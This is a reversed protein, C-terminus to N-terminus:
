SQKGFAFCKFDFSSGLCVICVFKECLVLVQTWKLLFWVTKPPLLLPALFPFISVGTLTSKIFNFSLWITITCALTVMHCSWDDLFYAAKLFTHFQSININWINSSQTKPMRMPQLAPLLHVHEPLTRKPQLRVGTPYEKRRRERWCYSVDPRATASSERSWAPLVACCRTHRPGSPVCSCLFPCPSAACGPLDPVGAGGTAGWETPQCSTLSSAGSAVAMRTLIDWVTGAVASPFSLFLALPSHACAGSGNM